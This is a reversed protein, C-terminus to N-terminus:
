PEFWEFGCSEFGLTAPSALLRISQSELRGSTLALALGNAIADFCEISVPEACEGSRTGLWESPEHEFSAFIRQEVRLGSRQEICEIGSERHFLGTTFEIVGITTWELKDGSRRELGAISQRQTTGNSGTLTRCHHKPEVCFIALREGSGM